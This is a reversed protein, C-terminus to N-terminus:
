LKRLRGYIMKRVEVVEGTLRDSIESNLYELDRALLILYEVVSCGAVGRRLDAAFELDNERGCGEAIRTAVGVVGRRLQMTVGFVEERPLAQTARYVNLVLAHARKWVDLGRFDQM